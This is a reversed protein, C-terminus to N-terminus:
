VLTRKVMNAVVIASDAAGASGVYGTDILSEGERRATIADGVNYLNKIPTEPPMGHGPWSRYEPFESDINRLDLKLIRGHDKLGPLLEGLDLMYQKAEYENDPPFLSAQPGGFIFTLHQGPPALDPSITSFPDIGIVRRAGAVQCVGKMGPEGWLPRDSGIYIQCAPTPRLRIRMLKLYEKDPWNEEGVLEITGKPGVNSIVVQSTVETEKGDKIIVIGKAVGNSLLIRKTRCRTWVDGKKKIVEALSEANASNGRPAKGPARAGGVRFFRFLSATTMEYARAGALVAISDFIDYVDKDDTFQLLWDRITPGVQKEPEDFGKRMADTIEKIPVGKAIRGESKAKEGELDNVIELLRRLSGKPPMEYDKGHVKWRLQPVIVHEWKAGVEKFIQELRGGVEIIHAGRDLKFGEYEETSWRGGVYDFKEVVLTKYGTHALLGGAGLGGIGSGVVIVDYDYKAAGM